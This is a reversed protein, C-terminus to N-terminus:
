HLKADAKYLFDNYEHDYDGGDDGNAGAPTSSLLAHLHQLPLHSGTSSGPQGSKGSRM